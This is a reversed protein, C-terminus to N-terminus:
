WASSRSFSGLWFAMRIAWVRGATAGHPAPQGPESAPAAGQSGSEDRQQRAQQQHQTQQEASEAQGESQRVPEGQQQQQQQGQDAPQVMLASAKLAHSNIVAMRIAQLMSPSYGGAVDTGLGVKVGYALARAVCFLGDGFYFNSLPCHAVAAGRTAMLQLADTTLQTGHAFIAPSTLLGAADYIAADHQM